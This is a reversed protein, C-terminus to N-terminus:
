LKALFILEKLKKKTEAKNTFLDQCNLNETGGKEGHNVRTYLIM